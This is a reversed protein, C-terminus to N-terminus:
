MNPSKGESLFFLVLSQVLQTMFSFDLKNMTDSTRHYHPNRYFATDTIMVAKYGQDWFSAHDSLRINPILYGSGPVISKVVPLNENEEFAQFLSATFKRSRYNGVIGIYDGIKPYGFFMLPFPYTQCGPEHCTYGVMELCIMGDIREKEKKAKRAYVRSGMSRTAYAPPEELAFSVFRITLDLTKSTKLGALVRAVELQVAVASANDDAGVTGKLSDYHAGILFVKSNGNTFVIDAVINSVTEKRYPYPERHSDVNIEQYFAEIYEATKELNWLSAVSREGITKTLAEVHTKLNQETTRLDIIDAKSNM